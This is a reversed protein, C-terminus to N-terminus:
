KITERLKKMDKESFDPHKHRADEGHKGCYGPLDKKRKVIESVCGCKYEEWWGIPKISRAIKM